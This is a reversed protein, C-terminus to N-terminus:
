RLFVHGSQARDRFSNKVKIQSLKGQNVKAPGGVGAFEPPARSHRRPWDCCHPWVVPAQFCICRSKVTRRAAAPAECVVAGVSAATM